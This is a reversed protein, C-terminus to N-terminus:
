SLIMMMLVMVFQSLLCHCCITVHLELGDAWILSAVVVEEPVSMELHLRHVVDVVVVAAVYQLQLLPPLINHHPLTLPWPIISSYEAAVAVLAPTGTHHYEKSDHPAQISFIVGVTDTGVAAAAICAIDMCSNSM